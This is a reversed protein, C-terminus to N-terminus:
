LSVSPPALIASGRFAKLHMMNTRAARKAIVSDFIQDRKACIAVVLRMEGVSLRLANNPVTCAVCELIDLASCKM